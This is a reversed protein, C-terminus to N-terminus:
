CFSPSSGFGDLLGHRQIADIVYPQITTSSQNVVAIRLGGDPKRVAM